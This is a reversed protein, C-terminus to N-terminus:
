ACAIAQACYFLIMSEALTVELDVDVKDNTSQLWGNNPCAFAIVKVNHISM